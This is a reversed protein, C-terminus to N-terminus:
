TYDIIQPKLLDAGELDKRFKEFLKSQQWKLAAQFYFPVFLILAFVWIPIEEKTSQFIFAILMLSCVGLILKVTSNIKSSVIIKNSSIEVILHLHHFDGWVIKPRLESKQEDIIQFTYRMKESRAKVKEFLSDSTLDKENKLELIEYFKFYEKLEMPSQNLEFPLNRQNCM